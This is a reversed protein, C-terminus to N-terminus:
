QPTLVLVIKNLYPAVVNNGKYDGKFEVEEVVM